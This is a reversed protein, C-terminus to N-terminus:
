NAGETPLLFAAEIGELGKYFGQLALVVALNRQVNGGAGLTALLNIQSKEPSKFFCFLPTFLEPIATQEELQEANSVMEAYTLDLWPRNEIVEEYVELDEQFDMEEDILFEELFDDLNAKLESDVVEQLYMLMTLMETGREALKEELRQWEPSDMWDDNGQSEQWSLWSIYLLDFIYEKYPQLAADEKCLLDLSKVSQALDKADSLLGLVAQLRGQWAQNAASDEQELWSKLDAVLTEPKTGLAQKAQPLQALHLGSLLGVASQKIRDYM